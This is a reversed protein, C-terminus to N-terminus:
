RSDSLDNFPLPLSRGDGLFFKGAVGQEGESYIGVTVETTKQVDAKM